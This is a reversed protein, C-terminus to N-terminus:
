IKEATSINDDIVAYTNDVDNYEKDTYQAPALDYPPPPDSCRM